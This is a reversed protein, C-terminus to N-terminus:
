RCPAPPDLCMGREHKYKQNLCIEAHYQWPSLKLKFTRALKNNDLVSWIPRKAKTPFESSSVPLLEDVLLVEHRKASAIVEKAFDYWTCEGYPRLNYVRNGRKCHMAQAMCQAIVRCSIDAIFNSSTPTGKQDNVVKLTKMTRARSIIANPFNSSDADYVWCTRFILHRCDVAQIAKEGALKSAGYVNIPDEPDTETYPKDGRGNFVYDTSYHILTADISKCVKAMIGPAQGNILFALGPEDEAQDVQTYAAANIVISPNVSRIVFEIQELNSLDMTVDAGEGTRNATILECKEKLENVLAAGVQGNVGTVLIKQSALSDM